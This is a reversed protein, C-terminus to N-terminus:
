RRNGNGDRVSIQWCHTVGFDFNLQLVSSETSVAHLLDLLKSLQSYNIDVM